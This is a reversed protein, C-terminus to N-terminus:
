INKGMDKQTIGEVVDTRGDIKISYTVKGDVEKYDKIVGKFNKNRGNDFFKVKEGIDYQAKETKKGEKIHGVIDKRKGKEQNLSDKSHEKNGKTEPYEKHADISTQIAEKLNEPKNKFVSRSALDQLVENSPMKGSKGFEVIKNTIEQESLSEIKDGKAEKYEAETYYYKYNGPSGERKYYKHGKELLNDLQGFAEEATLEDILGKNFNDNITNVVNEATMIHETEKFNKLINFAVSQRKIEM